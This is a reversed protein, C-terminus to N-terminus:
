IFQHDIGALIGKLPKQFSALSTMMKVNNEKNERM